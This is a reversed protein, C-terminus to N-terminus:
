RKSIVNAFKYFSFFLVFKMICKTHIHKCLIEACIILNEFLKIVIVGTNKFFFVLILVVHSGLLTKKYLQQSVQKQEMLREREEDQRKEQERLEQM